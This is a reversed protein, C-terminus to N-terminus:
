KATKQHNILKYFEDKLRQEVAPDLNKQARARSVRALAENAEAKSMSAIQQDSLPDPV